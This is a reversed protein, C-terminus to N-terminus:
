HRVRGCSDEGALGADCGLRKAMAELTYDPYQLTKEEWKAAARRAARPAVATLPCRSARPSHTM